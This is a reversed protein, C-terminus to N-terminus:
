TDAAAIANPHAADDIAPKYPHASLKKLYPRGLPQDIGPAPLARERIQRLRQHRKLQATRFGLGQQDQPMLFERIGGDEVLMPGSPNRGAVTEIPQYRLRPESAIAWGSSARGTAPM